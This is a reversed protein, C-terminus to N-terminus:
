IIAKFKAYKGFDDRYTKLLTTQMNMCDIFSKTNIFTQLVAPMGGLAIYERIMDLCLSHHVERIENKLDCNQLYDLLLDYNFAKLYEYFRLPKLYLYQVRGVPMRFNEDNLTFELLSGAGIIAYQPAKEKFIDLLWSPKPVLNSRM